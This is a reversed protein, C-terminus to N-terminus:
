FIAAFSARAWRTGCRSRSRSKPTRSSARRSRFPGLSWSTRPSSTRRHAQRLRASRLAGGALCDHERAPEAGDAAHPHIRRAGRRSAAHDHLIADHCTASAASDIGIGAAPASVALSGRSQLLGGAHGHSLHPLAAGPDPFLDEPYRIHQRLDPPMATWRSSCARSSASTHARHASRRFRQRLLRGLRQLRRDGGQGLQPHLQHRRPIRSPMPFGSAPPTPTRCGSYAGTASWSTPTLDLRLFPAITRVRDQINRRLLIRSETRSTAASCSTPITSIGPSSAADHWTASPSVTRATTAAYVNDKGRPYDFEPTSGNVIVYRESGEGFYLRPERIAPGGTSVPPIDRLYFIPLGETSKQTVPSMVVGNGHTFLLHLNVWTQANPPLLSPELERASLMVQRYAGDLQYRDIDMTLFKYYTRIEQLQAYTDM